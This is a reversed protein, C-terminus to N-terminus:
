EALSKELYRIVQEPDMELPSPLGRAQYQAKLETYQQSSRTELSTQFYALVETPIRLNGSELQAQVQEETMREHHSIVQLALATLERALYWKFYDGQTRQKLQQSWIEARTLRQVDVPDARSQRAPKAPRLSAAALALLVTLFLAWILQPFANYLLGMTWLVYEVPILIAARVFDRLLYALVVALVAGALLTLPSSKLRARLRASM